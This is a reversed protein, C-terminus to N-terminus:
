LKEYVMRQGCLTCTKSYQGTQKDYEEAGSGEPYQHTHHNTLM